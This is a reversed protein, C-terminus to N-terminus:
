GTWLPWRGGPGTPFRRGTLLEAWEGAPGLELRTVPRSRSAAGDVVLGTVAFTEIVFGSVTVALPFGATGSYLKLHVRTPARMDWPGAITAVQSPWRLGCRIVVIGRPCAQLLRREDVRARCALDSVLEHRYLSAHETVVPDGALGWALALRVQERPLGVEALRRAVERASILM